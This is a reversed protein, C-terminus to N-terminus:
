DQFPRKKIMGGKIDNVSSEVVFANEDIKLVENKVKQIELRTVVTYIVDVDYDRYGKKGFGSKGKLVTIGRGMNRMIAEKIEDSKSSVIILATYEEIGHVVFDIAKTAVLFTLIAYLAVETNILYAAAAFIFINIILIFDGVTLSTKKSTYIALVESGDLVCGGRISLGIGVGLFFGGFFSVLLKDTTVVPFPIAVLAIALLVIAVLTSAAFNKSIQKYGIYIFPLNLVVLLISLNLGTVSNILLSIGMIGGDLFKSPLLFGKLGFSASLVGLSIFFGNKVVTKIEFKKPM